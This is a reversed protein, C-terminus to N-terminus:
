VKLGTVYQVVALFSRIKKRYISKLNKASPSDLIVKNLAM